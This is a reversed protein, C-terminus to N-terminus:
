NGSNNTEYHSFVQNSYYNYKGKNNCTNNSRPLYKNQIYQSGDLMSIVLRCFNNKDTLSCGALQIIKSKRIKTESALPRLINHQYTTKVFYIHLM